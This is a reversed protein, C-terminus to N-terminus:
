WGGDAAADLHDLVNEIHSVTAQDDVEASLSVLKEELEVVRDRDAKTDATKDGEALEMLGENLFNLHRQIESDAADSARQLEARLM